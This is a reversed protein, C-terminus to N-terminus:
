FEDVRDGGIRTATSSAPSRPSGAATWTRSTATWSGSSARYPRGGRDNRRRVVRLRARDARVRRLASGRSHRTVARLFERGSAPRPDLLKPMDREAPRPRARARRRAGRRLGRRRPADRGAGPIPRSCASSGNRGRRLQRRGPRGHRRPISDGIEVGGGHHVSVWTAGAATNLLANLIPWDAIADSGDRMAETERYPVGGLRLRPPRPRDGGTGLGHGDARARQDRPGGQGPRRLRALLDAGAAGPLRRARSRARALAPAARRRPLAPPVGRRDGRHRCPRRSSPGGSPVWAM